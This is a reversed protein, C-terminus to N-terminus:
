NKQQKTKITMDLFGNGFGLDCVKIGMNDELIKMIKAKVNLGKIWKSNIKTYPTLYPDLKM